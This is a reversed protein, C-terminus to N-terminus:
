QVVLCFISDKVKEYKKKQLDFRLLGDGSSCLWIFGKIAQKNIESFPTTLEIDNRRVDELVYVLWQAAM